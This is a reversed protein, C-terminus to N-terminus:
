LTGHVAFGSYLLRLILHKNGGEGDGKCDFHNNSQAVPVAYRGALNPAVLMCRLGNSAPSRTKTVGFQGSSRERYKAVTTITTPESAHTRILGYRVM